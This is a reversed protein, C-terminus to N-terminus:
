KTIAVGSLFVWICTTAIHKSLNQQNVPSYTNGKISRHLFAFQEKFEGIVSKLQNLGTLQSKCRVTLKM